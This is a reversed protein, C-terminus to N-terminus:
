VVPPQDWAEGRLGAQLGGPCEPAARQSARDQLRVVCLVLEGM